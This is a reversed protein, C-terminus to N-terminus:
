KLLLMKKTNQFNTSGDASIAKLTYFYIGSTLESANFSVENYGASITNNILEKVMQGTANYVILSVKSESPLNFSIMTSPNFPNPYNQGLDFSAPVVNVEVTNSYSSTGDFDVQKLRYLYKGSQTADAYTYNSTGTTTGNGDVFGITAFESNNSSRQVEFGKNNTETATAWNLNVVNNTVSANFSVFEVPVVDAGFKVDDFYYTQEGAVAGTVGFNFFISVKDLNHALNLGGTGPAAVGFDFVLTQWTNAVAYTIETEANNGGNLHDEAKLRIQIPAHPAWVRVNMRKELETFPVKTSFGTQQGGAVATITTGAWLEATASKIVKVINNSANNPDVIISSADAGGFGVVGYNVTPDDFTVPLNMQTLTPGGGGPVLRIDDFLFTWNAGGAGVTGNDFIIVIKSYTNATNIASFDFTYEEWANAVTGTDSTEFFIGGSSENEVKLLMRLGIRPSFVKVKFIKNTSFDMPGAMAIWAGGWPDGANKIMQGVFASTNIGNIQPNAIRSAEGGSFNTFTYNLSGNEFDFPLVPQQALLSSFSFLAFVFFLLSKHRMTDGFHNFLKQIHMIRESIYLVIIM